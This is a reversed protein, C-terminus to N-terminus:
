KRKCYPVFSMVAPEFDM